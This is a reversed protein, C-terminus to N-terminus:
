AVTLQTLLAILPGIVKSRHWPKVLASDQYENVVPTQEVHFQGSETSLVRHQTHKHVHILVEKRPINMLDGIESITLSSPEKNYLLSLIQCAFRSAFVCRYM